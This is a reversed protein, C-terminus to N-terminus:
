QFCGECVTIENNALEKASAWYRLHCVDCTYSRGGAHLKHFKIAM